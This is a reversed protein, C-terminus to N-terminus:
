VWFIVEVRGVNYVTHEVSSVNTQMRNGVCEVTEKKRREM